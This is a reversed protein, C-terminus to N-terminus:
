LLGDSIFPPRGLPEVGSGYLRDLALILAQWIAGEAGTPPADDPALTRAAIGVADGVAKRHTEDVAAFDVLWEALAAPGARDSGIQELLEDILNEAERSSEM